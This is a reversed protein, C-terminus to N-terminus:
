TSFGRAVVTASPRVTSSAAARLPRTRPAAGSVKRPLALWVSRLAMSEPAIPVGIPAEAKMLWLLASVQCGFGAKRNWSPPPGTISM